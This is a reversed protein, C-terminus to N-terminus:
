RTREVTWLLHPWDGLDHGDGDLPTLLAAVSAGPLGAARYAARSQDIRWPRYGFARMEAIVRASSSGLDQLHHPHLEMSISDILTASLRRRLGAIARAEGGEIDMKLVHVHTVGAEDLVDDLARAAVEFQRRGGVVHTSQAVGFNGSDGAEPEYEQFSLLGPGDSAAIDYVQVSELGNRAINARVTRAARADAEVSVVHGTSGVLHAGVLTFYGWNAGVDVFTMGPRLLHRLVVTEQPEYRGTFCVERMLGDRLDCQFSLSGLDPPLKAWFPDLSRGGIWNMARVRGAPLRRIIGAAASIWIPTMALPTDPV